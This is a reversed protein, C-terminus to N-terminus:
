WYYRPEHKMTKVAYTRPRSVSYLFRIRKIVSVSESDQDMKKQPPPPNMLLNQLLPYTISTSRRNYHSNIHIKVIKIIKNITLINKQIQIERYNHCFPFSMACVSLFRFIRSLYDLPFATREM